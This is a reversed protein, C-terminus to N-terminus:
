VGHGTGQARHGTAPPGPALGEGLVAKALHKYAPDQAQRRGGPMVRGQMAQDHCSLHSCQVNNDPQQRM